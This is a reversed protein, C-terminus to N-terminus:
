GDKIDKQKPIRQEVIVGSRGDAGLHVSLDTPRPHM